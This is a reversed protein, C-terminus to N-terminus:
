ALRGQNQCLIKGDISYELKNSVQNGPQSFNRFNKSSVKQAQFEYFNRAAQSFNRVFLLCEFIANLDSQVFIQMSVLATCNFLKRCNVVVATLQSKQRNQQFELNDDSYSFGFLM